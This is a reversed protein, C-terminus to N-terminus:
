GAVQPSHIRSLVRGIQASVRFLNRIPILGGVRYNAVAELGVSAMCGCRSCDPNGGFQCPVVRTTFDASITETIQAFLCEAPSAPPHALAEILAEGMDLNPFRKRLRLLEQIVFDRQGPSLCERSDDGRQPTFLSIRIAEVEERPAWFELFEELYGSRNLMRGTLTCHVTVRQGAINKLIREYTAPKRRADHEPALGDISVNLRFGRLNKWSAPIARFASTVLHVRIGRRALEPLLVELERYRVLPDGGVLYLLLPHHFEVLSLVGHVLDDGKRDSLQRLTTVGGLHADEYAYCGPCRLPCERTIEISLVPRRGSMIRQGALLIERVTM